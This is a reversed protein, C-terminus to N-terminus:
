SLEKLWQNYKKIGFNFDVSQIYGLSKLKSIDAKWNVPDGQKTNGSFRYNINTSQNDYFQKVADKIYIEEGNAVNIIPEKFDYKQIVLEIVHLLDDLYIFDRSEEGTGFLEIQNTNKTKTHLDWFLQKKLGPGYASFIRLSCIKLGFLEIFEKCVNEAALKHFGYPSIPNLPHKEDIPLYQPNGYVAASSLNIFKCQPQHMRIADLLKFVNMTNLTFDRLPHKISAFVEAAGSCNVCIDFFESSFIENYDSNVADILFYNDAGYDTVVDCGFVDYKMKLLYDFLHQGIFGKSGIILIKM